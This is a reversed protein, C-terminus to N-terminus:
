TDRQLTAHNHLLAFIHSIEFYYDTLMSYQEHGYGAKIGAVPRQWGNYPM